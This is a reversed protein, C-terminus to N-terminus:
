FSIKWTAGFYTVENQTAEKYDILGIEPTVIVGPALTIPTQFYYTEVEDKQTAVAIPFDVETKQYGYGAELAFMDNLAYNAVMSFAIADNDRVSGLGDYHACGAGILNTSDFVNAEIYTLNGQNQGGSVNAALWLNGLKIDAGASLMYANVNQDGYTADIIKFTSYGGMLALGWNDAGFKYKATIVPMKSETSTGPTGSTFVGQTYRLDPKRFVSFSSPVIDYSYPDQAWVTMECTKAM